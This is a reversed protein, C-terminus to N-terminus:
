AAILLEYTCFAPKEREIVARVLGEDVAAEGDPRLRVAFHYPKGGGLHSDAGLRAQNVTFGYGSGETIQIHHSDLPLDTYLHIFLQLGRRTGRWRYLEVAHRILRRQREQSWRSELPWAVWHALFPLLAEPATLPDLYAWMQDMAQNIPEFAQEFLALFRSLFDSERYLDPLFDLYLSPPRLHLSFAVMETHRQGNSTPTVHLYLRGQYDIQLGEPQSLPQAEFVDQPALFYLVIQQSQHSELPGDVGGVFCWQLPFDGEVQLQLDLTQEGQNELQLVLESPDGPTLLLQTLGSRPAATPLQMPTIRLTLPSRPVTYTM